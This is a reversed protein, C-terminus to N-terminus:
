RRGRRMGVLCGASRGDRVRRKESYVMEGWAELGTRVSIGRDPIGM